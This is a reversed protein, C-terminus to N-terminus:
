RSWRTNEYHTSLGVGDVDIYVSDMGITKQEFNVLWDINDWNRQYIAEHIIIKNIIPSNNRITFSLYNPINREPVDITAFSIFNLVSEYYMIRLKKNFEIDYFNNDGFPDYYKVKPSNYLNYAVSATTFSSPLPGSKSQAKHILMDKESVKAKSYGKAEVAFNGTLFDCYFDPRPGSVPFNQLVM